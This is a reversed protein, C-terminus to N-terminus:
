HNNESIVFLEDGDYRLINHEAEVSLQIDDGDAGDSGYDLNVIYRFGLNHAKSLKSIIYLDEPLLLRMIIDSTNKEKIVASKYNNISENKRKIEIDMTQLRYKYSNRVTDLISEKIDYFRDTSDIINKEERDIIKEMESIDHSKFIFMFSTSSSNSVFGGRVKM